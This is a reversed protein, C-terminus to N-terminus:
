LDAMKHRCNKSQCSIPARMRHRNNRHTACVKQDSQVLEGLKRLLDAGREINGKCPEVVDLVARNLSCRRRILEVADRSSNGEVKSRSVSSGGSSGEADEVAGGNALSELHRIVTNYKALCCKLDTTIEDSTMGVDLSQGPTSKRLHKFATKLRTLGSMLEKVISCEMSWTTQMIQDVADMDLQTADEEKADGDHLVREKVQARILNKLLVDVKFVHRIILRGEEKNTTLTVFKTYFKELISLSEPVDQNLSKFPVVQLADQLDDNDQIADLEKSADRYNKQKLSAVLISWKAM